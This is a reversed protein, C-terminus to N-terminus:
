KKVCWVNRDLILWVVWFMVWIYKNNYMGAHKIICLIDHRVPSIYVIYIQSIICETNVLFCNGTIESTTQAVVKKVWPWNQGEPITTPQTQRDTQRHTRYGSAQGRSLKDGTWAVIVLNPGSSCFVKTLIGITKPPLQGQVELGFKVLLLFNGYKSSTRAM